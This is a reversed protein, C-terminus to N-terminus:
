RVRERGRMLDSVLTSLEELRREAEHRYAEADATAQRSLAEQVGAFQETSQARAAEQAKAVATLVARAVAGASRRMLSPDLRLDVLWGAGDVVARALGDPETGSIRADALRAQWSEVDM